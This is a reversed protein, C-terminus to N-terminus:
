QVRWANCTVYDLAAALSMRNHCFDNLSEQEETVTPRWPKRAKYAAKNAKEAICYMDSYVSNFLPQSLDKAFRNKM